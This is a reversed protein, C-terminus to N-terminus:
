VTCRLSTKIRWNGPRPLRFLILMSRCSGGFRSYFSCLELSPSDRFSGHGILQLKSHPGFIVTRLNWCFEFCCEGVVEVSSPIWISALSQCQSFAGFGISRLSSDSDFEVTRMFFKSACCHRRLEEISSPIVISNPSGIVWVMSRLEFGVVIYCCM